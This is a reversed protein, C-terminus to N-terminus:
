FPSFNGAEESMRSAMDIERPRASHRQLVDDVVSAVSFSLLNEPAM